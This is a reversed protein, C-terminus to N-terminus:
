NWFLVLDDKSSNLPAGANVPKEWDSLSFNGQAYFIDFGGMGVHGDSSFVLTGSKEHFYPAEEDGSTNIVNGLNQVQIVEHNSDLSAKWLDYGGAGGPRDSSFLVYRGDSTLYPQASNSGEQNLPEPARVPETWGKETLHSTYIYSITQNNKKTWRTFFMFKGDHSFTAMGDHVGKGTPIDMQDAGTLPNDSNM